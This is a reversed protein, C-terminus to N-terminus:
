SKPSGKTQFCKARLIESLREDSFMKSTFEPSGSFGTAIDNLASPTDDAAALANTWYSFGGVDPNRGLISIYLNSIQTQIEPSFPTIM